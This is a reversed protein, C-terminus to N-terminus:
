LAYCRLGDQCTLIVHSGFVVPPAIMDSGFFEIGGVTPDQLHVWFFGSPIWSVFYPGGTSSLVAEINSVRIPGTSLLIGKTLIEPADSTLRAFHLTAPEDAVLVVGDDYLLPARLFHSDEPSCTTDPLSTIASPRLPRTTDWVNLSRRDDRLTEFVIKDGFRAPAGCMACDDSELLPELAPDHDPAYRFFRGGRSLVYARKSVVVPPHLWDGGDLEASVSTPHRQILQHVFLRRGASFLVSSQTGNELVAALPSVPQFEDEAHVTEVEVDTGVAMLRLVARDAFVYTFPYAVVLRPYHTGAFVASKRWVPEGTGLSLAICEGSSPVAAVVVDGMVVPPAMVSMMPNAFEHFWAPVPSGARVRDSAAPRLREGCYRCFTDLARNARGCAACKSLLRHCGPCSSPVSASLAQGCFPCGRPTQGKSTPPAWFDLIAKNTPNDRLAVSRRMEGVAEDLRGERRFAQALDAIVGSLEAVTDSPIEPVDGIALDVFFRAKDLEGKRATQYIVQLSSAMGM